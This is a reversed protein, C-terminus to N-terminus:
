VERSTIYLPFKSKSFCTTRVYLELTSSLFLCLWPVVGYTGLRERETKTSM